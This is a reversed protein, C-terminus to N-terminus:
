IFLPNIVFLFWALLSSFARWLFIYSYANAQINKFDKEKNEIELNDHILAELNWSGISFGIWQLIASLVYWYINEAFIWISFWFIILLTWLFYMKKRWFKDAWAWSPIEFTSSVLGSLLILNLATSFSFNLYSTFFFTWIATTFICASLFKIIYFLYINKKLM